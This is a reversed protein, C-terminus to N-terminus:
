LLLGRKRQVVPVSWSRAEIQATPYAPRTVISIEFLDARMVTRLIAGDSEQGIHEAGQGDSLRFGPSLGMALGESVLALADRGHSTGAIAPTIRAEIELAQDGDSLTLTGASRSALPRDFDHGVLLHIDAGAETLRPAFARSSIVEKRAGGMQGAPVLTTPTGYPFRGVLRASGDGDQRLELGGIAGGFLM